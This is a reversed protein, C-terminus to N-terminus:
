ADGANFFRALFSRRKKRGKHMRDDPANSISSIIINQLEGSDRLVKILTHGGGRFSNLEVNQSAKLHAAHKKDLMEKSDYYINIKSLNNRSNILNKLDFYKRSFNNHVYRIKEKNRIYAADLLFTHPSFAHVIDANILIGFVIAAYGGMSNGFVVVKDVGAEHIKQRLYDATEDINKSIGPLGSHYWTQSLDRLYIKNVYLDKTLHFFEFPPIGLAGAIGGFAIILSRSRYSLDLIAPLNPNKIESEFEITM